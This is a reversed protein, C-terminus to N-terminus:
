ALAMRFPCQRFRPPLNILLGVQGHRALGFGTKGLQHQHEDLRMFDFSQKLFFYRFVPCPGYGGGKGPMRDAHFVAADVLEVFPEVTGFM